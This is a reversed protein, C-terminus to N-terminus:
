QDLLEYPNVSANVAIIGFNYMVKSLAEFFQDSQEPTLNNHKVTDTILFGVARPIKNNM